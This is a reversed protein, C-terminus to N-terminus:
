LDLLCCSPTWLSHSPFFLRLFESIDVFDCGLGGCLVHVQKRVQHPGKWIIYAHWIQRREDQSFCHRMVMGTHWPSMVKKYGSFAVQWMNALPKAVMWQRQRGRAIRWGEEIKGEDKTLRLRQTRNNLPNTAYSPPFKEWTVWLGSERPAISSGQSRLRQKWDKM